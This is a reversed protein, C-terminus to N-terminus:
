GKYSLGRGQTCLCHGHILFQITVYDNDRSHPGIVWQLLSVSLNIMAGQEREAKRTSRTTLELKRLWRVWFAHARHDNWALCPM